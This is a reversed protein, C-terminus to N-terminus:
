ATYSPNPDHDFHRRQILWSELMSMELFSNATM